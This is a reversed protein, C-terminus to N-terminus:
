TSDPPRAALPRSSIASSRMSLRSGTPFDSSPGAKGDLTAVGDYLNKMESSEVSAHYLDKAPDIPDDIKFDKTGATIAGTM